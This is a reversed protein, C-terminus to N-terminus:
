ALLDFHLTALWQSAMRRGCTRVAQMKKMGLLVGAGSILACPQDRLIRSGLPARVRARVPSGDHIRFAKVIIHIQRLL